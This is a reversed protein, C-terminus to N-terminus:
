GRKVLRHLWNAHVELRRAAESVNGGAAEIARDVIQRRAGKLQAAYSSPSDDESVTELLSEPLDEPLIQDTSGMVVAREIANELERVNGPWDYHMLCARARASVGTMRRKCKQACQAAFYTALLPIDARRERLPPMVFRVVNLRFFLDQRFGGAKVAQELDRNTAAVLRFDAEIVRSGGVRQVKREQIVRLLKAQSSASLEGVEDLFLTGGHAREFVGQKQAVADTFAGKEHGFWESDLLSETMAACNLAVFPRAARASNRHIARAALEKGTGTEGCILVTSDVPAAKEILRYVEKMRPSEGLMEHQIDIESRLRRNESELGEVWRVNELALAAIAGVATMMQLLEEEFRTEPDSSDLYLVGVIRDFFPLPVALVARVPEDPPLDNSLIGIGERRVREVLPRSVEVPGGAQRCRGYVLEELVIAARQAPSVEFVLDLLRRGLAAHERLAQIEAGIRLLAALNRAVRDTAAETRVLEEPRLYVAEEKRLQITSRTVMRRDALRASGSEIAPGAPILFLFVSDGAKIEDGHALLRESVPVGNVFTGNRSELDAIRAGQPDPSLLCHRRSAAPDDVCIWNSEDRGISVARDGLALISGKLPGAIAVLQAPM